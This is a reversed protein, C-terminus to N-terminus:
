PNTELETVIDKAIDGMNFHLSNCMNTANLLVAQIRTKLEKKTDKDPQEGKPPVMRAVKFQFDDFTM